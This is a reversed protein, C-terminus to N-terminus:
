FDIRWLFQLFILSSQQHYKRRCWYYCQEPFNIIKLIMFNKLNSKNTLKINVMELILKALSTKDYIIFFNGFSFNKENPKVLAIMGESAGANSIISRM